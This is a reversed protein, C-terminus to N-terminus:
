AHEPPGGMAPDHSAPEQSAPDHSAPDHSAPDPREAEWSPTGAPTVSASLDAGAGDAATGEAAGDAAAIAAPAPSAAPRRHRLAWLREHAAILPTLLMERREPRPPVRLLVTELTSLLDAAVELEGSDCAHRFAENIKDSLRRSYRERDAAPM